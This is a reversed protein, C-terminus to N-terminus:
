RSKILRNYGLPQGDISIHIFYMGPQLSTIDIQESFPVKILERGNLDTITVYSLRSLQNDGPNINVFDTAPNPWINLLNKNKYHIDNVSTIKLASGVVPRIMISGPM